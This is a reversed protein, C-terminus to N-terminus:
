FKSVIQGLGLILKGNSITDFNIGWQLLVPEQISTLISSGKKFITKKSALGLMSFNEMGM